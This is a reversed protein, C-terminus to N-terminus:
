VVGTHTLVGHITKGDSTTMTNGEQNLWTDIARQQPTKSASHSKTELGYWKGDQEVFGDYYRQTDKPVIFEDGKNHRTGDKATFTTGWTGTIDKGTKAGPGKDATEYGWDKYQQIMRDEAASGDQTTGDSGAYHGTAVERYHGGPYQKVRGEAIAKELGEKQSDTLPTKTGSRHKTVGGTNKKGPKAHLGALVLFAGLGIARQFATAFLRRM